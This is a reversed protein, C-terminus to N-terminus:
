SLTYFGLKKDHQDPHHNECGIYNKNVTKVLYLKEIVTAASDDLIFHLKLLDAVNIHHQEKAELGLGHVSVNKIWCNPRIISETEWRVGVRMDKNNVRSGVKVFYGDLSTPKRYKNRHEFEIDFANKCSCIIRVWREKAFKAMDLTKQDYCKPCRVTINEQKKVFVKHAQHLLHQDM